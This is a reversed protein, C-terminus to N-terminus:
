AQSKGSWCFFARRFKIIFLLVFFGVGHGLNKVQRTIPASYIMNLWHNAPINYLDFYIDVYLFIGNVIIFPLRFIFQVIVFGITVNTVNRDNGEMMKSAKTCTASILLIIMIFMLLELVVDPFLMNVISYMYWLETKKKGHTLRCSGFAYPDPLLTEVKYVWYGALACSIIVSIIIGIVAHKKLITQDKKGTAYLFRDILLAVIMMQRTYVATNGLFIWAQCLAVGGSGGVEQFIDVNIWPTFLQEKLTHTFLYLFDSFFIILLFIGTSQKALGSSIVTIFGILNFLCGATAAIMGVVYANMALVENTTLSSSLGAVYATTTNWLENTTLSSNM